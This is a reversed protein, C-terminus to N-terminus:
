RHDVLTKVMLTYVGIDDVSFATDVHGVWVYLNSVGDGVTRKGQLSRPAEAGGGGFIILSEGTPTIVASNEWGFTETYLWDWDKNAQPSFDGFQDVTPFYGVGVLYPRPVYLPEFFSYNVYHNFTFKVLLREIVSGNAPVGMSVPGHFPDDQQPGLVELHWQLAM